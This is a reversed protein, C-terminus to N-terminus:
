LHKSFEEELNLITLKSNSRSLNSDSNSHLFHYRDDKFNLKLYLTNFKSFLFFFFCDFPQSSTSRVWRKLAM